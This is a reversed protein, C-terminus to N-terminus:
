KAEERGHEETSKRPLGTPEYRAKRTELGEEEERRRRRRREVKVGVNVGVARAVTLTKRWRIM